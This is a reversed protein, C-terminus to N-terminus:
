ASRAERDVQGALDHLREAARGALADGHGVALVEPELEALRHVSARNHKVNLVFGPWGACFKPWTAIADGTFLVRRDPWYFALHGPSHGPTHIVQLPGLTDGDRLVQDVPCPPHNARTVTIQALWTAWHDMPRWSVGQPPRDGGIIDAEWEHSYVRAGSLQKLLALGGLHARHGHSIVIRKIDQPTRGIRQVETLIGSADTSHLTDILTLSEGDDVLFAHVYAGRRLAGNLETLDYVGPAINSM